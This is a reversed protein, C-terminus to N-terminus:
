KEKKNVKFVIISGWIGWLIGFPVIKLVQLSAKKDKLILEEPFYRGKLTNKVEVTSIGNKSSITSGHEYEKKILIISKPEKGYLRRGIEFGLNGVARSPINKVELVQQEIQWCNHKIVYIHRSVARDLSFVALIIDLKKRGKVGIDWVFDNILKNTIEKCFLKTNNISDYICIQAHTFSIGSVKPHLRINVLKEGNKVVCTSKVNLEAFVHNEVLAEKAINQELLRDEIILKFPKIGQWYNEHINIPIFRLRLTKSDGVELPGLDVSNLETLSVIKNQYRVKYKDIWDNDFHIAFKGSRKKGLNRVTFIAEFEDGWKVLKPMQLKLETKYPLICYGLKYVRKYPIRTICFTKEKPNGVVAFGPQYASWGPKAHKDDRAVFIARSTMNFSDGRSDKHALCITDTLNRVVELSIQKDHIDNINFRIIKCIKQKPSIVFADKFIVTRSARLSINVVENKTGYINTICLNLKAFEEKFSCDLPKLEVLLPERVSFEALKYKCMKQKSNQLCAFHINIPHVNRYMCKGAYNTFINATYNDISIVSSLSGGRPAGLAVMNVNIMHGSFNYGYFWFQVKAQPPVSVSHAIDFRKVHGRRVDVFDLINKRSLFYASVGKVKNVDFSFTESREPLDSIGLATAPVFHCNLIDGSPYFWDAKVKSGLSLLIWLLMLFWQLIAWFIILYTVLKYRRNYIVLRWRARM